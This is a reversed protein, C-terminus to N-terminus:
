LKNRSAFSYTGSTTFPSSKAPVKNSVQLSSSRRISLSFQIWSDLCTKSTSSTSILNLRGRMGLTPRSPGSDVCPSIGLTRIMWCGTKRQLRVDIMSHNGLHIKEIDTNWKPVKALAVKGSLDARFDPSSDDVSDHRNTQTAATDVVVSLVVGFSRCIRPLELEDIVIGSSVGSKRASPPIRAIQDYWSSRSPHRLM